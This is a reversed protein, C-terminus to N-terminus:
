LLHKKLMSLFLERNLPKSIYDICGADFAKQKDELTAYATQAIIRLNPRQQKIQHIAKYGDMDPLRIDMLVLDITQSVAIQVAEHGNEAYSVKLGTDTLIEKIYLANFPDDEVLLLTKSSFYYERSEDTLVPEHQVSKSIQYPFSFYFTTGGAKGAPLNELESELWIKGGLLNILGKVISLGLGTGGYVQKKAYVLQSFREFIADHKDPPIGIGTDSVYFVLNRNADIKCGGEIKGTVTFKFANSILNILIQKLKVKDILITNESPDCLAQLNLKIQQKGIRKQHEKFFSTLEVFLETLNCEEINLPLQGSEIRSIDLIDNIIELLDNCRRNIIESFEELKPKNNYYDVLLSSFGMIANMPTRIEHSMNQLFATKLRDSEEAKEKADKLAENARLLQENLQKYEANRAKIAKNKEKIQLEAQKRESIDKVAGVITVVRNEQEDWESRCVISIWRLKHDHIYSRCEFEKSQPCAILKQLLEMVKPLDDPHVINSWSDITLADDKTRGTLSYFNDSVFDIIVKGDANVGLKFIYDTTLESIIKYHQESEHLAEEIRKRETIDRFSWVRGVIEDDIRQPQSYREFVREDKFEITDFSEQHPQAYLERVKALFKDSDKLQDLIFSLLKNDDGTGLVHQPIRWLEGFKRNFSSVKGSLDVVLIGDATSELTARLLSSMQKQVEETMKRGTIDRCLTLIKQKGEEEIMTANIEVPTRNGRTDIYTIVFNRIFSNRLCTAIARANTEKEEDATWEVVSRGLIEGLNVHGSLRVYEQNADLVVGKNDIIVYGTETTEILRRYREESKRQAEEAQKRGTIDEIISIICSKHGLQIVQASFLATIVNGSKARLQTEQRVVARGDGLVAVFRQRDEKHVWLKLNLTSSALAEERTFGSVNTFADNVEVFAGDEMNAIIFAYPSTRFAKSFREESDRLAEEAKKRETIDDFIVFIKGSVPVGSIFITKISGDKCTIRYENGIIEKGENIARQVLRMWEAVVKKRYDEDRYAQAWWKDMDPIDEPLYGFVKVAKHNIFEIVGDMSVVAMAIPAQEVIKRFRDESEHLAEEAKKRGTIDKEYSAKLSNYKLQLEQIENILEENSKKQYNM